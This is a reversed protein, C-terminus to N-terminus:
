QPTVETKMMPLITKLLDYNRDSQNSLAQMQQQLRDLDRTVDQLARNANSTNASVKDLDRGVDDIKRKMAKFDEPAMGQKTLMEVLAEDAQARVFDGGLWWISAWIVGVAVAISQLHRWMVNVPMAKLRDFINTMTGGGTEKSFFGSRGTVDCYVSRYLGVAGCLAV